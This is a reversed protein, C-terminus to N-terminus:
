HRFLVLSGNGLGGCVARLVVGIGDRCRDRPRRAYAVVVGSQLRIEAACFHVGHPM